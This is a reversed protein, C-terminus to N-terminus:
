HLGCSTPSRTLAVCFATREAAILEDGRLATVLAYDLVRLLGQRLGNSPRDGRKDMRQLMELLLYMAFVNGGQAASAQAADVLEGALRAGTAFDAAFDGTPKPLSWRSTAKDTVGHFSLTNLPSRRLQDAEARLKEATRM